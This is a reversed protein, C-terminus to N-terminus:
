GPAADDGAPSVHLVATNARVFRVPAALGPAAALLILLLAM